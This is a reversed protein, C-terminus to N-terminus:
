ECEPKVALGLRGRERMNRYEDFGRSALDSMLKKCSWTYTGSDKAWRVYAQYINQATDRYGPGALCCEEIFAGLVDQEHRYDQTAALVEDPERLGGRQWELCGRVAWALIGPAEELLKFM